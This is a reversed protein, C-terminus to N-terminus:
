PNSFTLTVSLGYPSTIHTADVDVYLQDGTAVDDYSPNIATTDAFFANGIQLGPVTLMDVDTGDRRRRIQVDTTNTIGKTHVSAVVESLNYGNIIMPTTFADVGDAIPVAL